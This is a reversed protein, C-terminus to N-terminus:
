KMGEFHLSSEAGYRRYNSFSMENWESRKSEPYFVAYRASSPLLWSAGGFDVPSLSVDWDIESIRTDAPISISKRAIKLISGSAVSIWVDTTFPIQYHQTGVELDWPSEQATVAFRYIAAPRGEVSAFSVFSVPQTGLLKGTQQLLTGFEGESWAGSIASLSERSVANQRIESYHEIGNEFSLKSSVHDIFRPKTGELSGRYRQIEERCVFSKLASYLDSNAARAAELLQPRGPRFEVSPAPTREGDSVSDSPTGFVGLAPLLALLTVRHFM